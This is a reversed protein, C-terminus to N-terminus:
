QVLEMRYRVEGGRARHILVLEGGLRALTLTFLQPESDPDLPDIPASLVDDFVLEM